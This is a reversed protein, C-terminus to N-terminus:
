MEVTFLYMARCPAGSFCVMAPTYPSFCLQETLPYSHWSIPTILPMPTMLIILLSLGITGMVRMAGM